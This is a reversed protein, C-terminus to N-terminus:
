HLQARKHLTSASKHLMQAHKHMTQASKHLTPAAYHLSSNEENRRLVVVPASKLDCCKRFRFNANHDCLEM